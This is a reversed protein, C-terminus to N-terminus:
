NCLTEISLSKVQKKKINKNSETCGLRDRSLTKTVVQLLLEESPLNDRSKRQGWVWRKEKEKGLKIEMIENWKQSKMM